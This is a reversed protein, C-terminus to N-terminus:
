KVKYGMQLIAQEALVDLADLTSAKVDDDIIITSLETCALIAYDIGLDKLNRIINNLKDSKRSGTAKVNYIIDMLDNRINSDIDYMDINYKSSYKNYVNGEYTGKTGLVAIRKKNNQSVKKVTEEVMNILKINTLKQVDDFFYHFTNCPVAIRKVNNNEFLKIDDKVVNLVLDKSKHNIIVDTRDPINTDSLIITNIHDQDSKADTMNVIKEYFICTALPGMGGLIGLKEM